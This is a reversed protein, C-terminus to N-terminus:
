THNTLQYNGKKEQKSQRYNASKTWLPGSDEDMKIFKIIIKKKLLLYDLPLYFRLKLIAGNKRKTQVNTSLVDDKWIKRNTGKNNNNETSRWWYTTHIYKPGFAFSVRETWENM